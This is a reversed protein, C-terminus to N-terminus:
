RINQIRIVLRFVILYVFINNIIFLTTDGSDSPIGRIKNQSYHFTTQDLSLVEILSLLKRYM